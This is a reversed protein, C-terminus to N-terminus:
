QISCRPLPLARLNSTATVPKYFDKAPERPLKLSDAMKLDGPFQSIVKIKEETEKADVQQSISKLLGPTGEKYLRYKYSLCLYVNPAIEIPQANINKTTLAEEIAKEVWKIEPCYEKFFSIIKIMNLPNTNSMLYVKEEFKAHDLVQRLHATSDDDWTIIGNWADALLQKPNDVKKDLFYFIKLLSNLFKDDDIRGLKYDDFLGKNAYYHGLVWPYNIIGFLGCCWQSKPAYEYCLKVFPYLGDPIIPKLKFISSLNIIFSM